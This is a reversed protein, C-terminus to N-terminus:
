ASNSAKLTHPSAASGALGSGSSPQSHGGPWLELPKARGAGFRGHRVLKNPDRGFAFPPQLTRKALEMGRGFGQAAMSNGAPQGQRVKRTCRAAPRGPEPASSPTGRQLRLLSTRRERRQRVGAPPPARVRRLSGRPAGASSPTGRPLRLLSARRERRQRGRGFAASAGGAGPCLLCGGGDLDVAPGAPPPSSM